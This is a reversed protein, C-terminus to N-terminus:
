AGAKALRITITGLSILGVAAGAVAAFNEEQRAYKMARLMRRLMEPVVTLADIVKRLMFRVYRVDYSECRWRAFTSSEM